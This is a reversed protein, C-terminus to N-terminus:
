WIEERYFTLGTNKRQSERHFRETETTLRGLDDVVSVCLFVSTVCLNTIQHQQAKM